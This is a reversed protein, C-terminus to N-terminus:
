KEAEVNSYFPLLKKLEDKTLGSNPFCDKRMALILSAYSNELQEKEVEPEEPWPRNERIAEIWELHRAISKANESVISAVVDSSHLLLAWRADMLEAKAARRTDPHGYMETSLTRVSSNIYKAYLRRREIRDADFRAFIRQIAIGIVALAGTSIAIYLPLYALFNVPVTTESM